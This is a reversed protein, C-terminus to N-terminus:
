FLSEPVPTKMHTKCFKWSCRKRLVGGPSKNQVEYILTVLGFDISRLFKVINSLHFLLLPKFCIDNRKLLTFNTVLETEISISSYISTM